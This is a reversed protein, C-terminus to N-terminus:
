AFGWRTQAKIFPRLMGAAATSDKAKVVGTDFGTVGLRTDKSQFLYAAQLLCARVVANPVAPWGWKATVVISAQGPFIVYAAMSRFFRISWIATSENPGVMGVNQELQYQTSDVTTGLDVISVLSTPLFDDVELVAGFVANVTPRVYSRASAVTDAYFRRGTAQDIWRSADEIAADFLDDDANDSIGLYRKLALTTCYGNSITV